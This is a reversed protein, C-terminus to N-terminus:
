EVGAAALALTSMPVDLIISLQPLRAPRPKYAGRMWGRVAHPTVDDGDGGLRAAVGDATLSLTEMRANLLRSFPTPTEM